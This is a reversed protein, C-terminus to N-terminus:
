AAAAAIVCSLVRSRGAATRKFSYNPAAQRASGQIKPQTCTRSSERAAMTLLGAPTFAAAQPTPCKSLMCSLVCADIPECRHAFGSLLRGFDSNGTAGAIGSLSCHRAWPKGAEAAAASFSLVVILSCFVSCLIRTM